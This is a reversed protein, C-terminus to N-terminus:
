KGKQNRSFIAAVAPSNKALERLTEADAGMLRINYENSNLNMNINDSAAMFRDRAANIDSQSITGNKLAAKMEEVTYGMITATGEAIIEAESKGTMTKQLEKSPMIKSITIDGVRVGFREEFETLGTKFETDLHRKLETGSKLASEISKATSLYNIIEAKILDTLDGAVSAIGSLYPVTREIDARMRASGEIELNGKPTQVEMKLTESAEELSITRGTARAEWPYSLHWGPGYTVYAAEDEQGSGSNRFARLQDVTVFAKFAGVTVIFRHLTSTILIVWGVLGLFVGISPLGFWGRALTTTITLIMVLTLVIWLVFVALRGNRDRATILSDTAYLQYDNAM